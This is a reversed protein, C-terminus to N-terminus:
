ANMTILHRLLVVPQSVQISLAYVGHTLFFPSVINKDM